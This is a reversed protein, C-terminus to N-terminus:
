LRTNVIPCLIMCLFKTVKKKNKPGKVSKYNNKGNNDSEIYVHNFSM